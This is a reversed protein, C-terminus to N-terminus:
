IGTTMKGVAEVVTTPQPGGKSAAAKAIARGITYAGSAVGVVVAQAIPPLAHGFIGWIATAASIWFETTTWGPKMGAIM